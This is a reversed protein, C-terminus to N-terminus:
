TLKQYSLYSGAPSKGFNTDTIEAVRGGGQLMQAFGMNADIGALETKFCKM